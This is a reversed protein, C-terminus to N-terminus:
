PSSGSSSACWLMGTIELPKVAAAMSNTLTFVACLLIDILTFHQFNNALSFKQFVLNLKVSITVSNSMLTTFLMFEDTTAFFSLMIRLHMYNSESGILSSVDGTICKQFLSVLKSLLLSMIM